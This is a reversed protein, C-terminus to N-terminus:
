EMLVWVDNQFTADRKSHCGTELETNWTSFFSDRAWFVQELPENDQGHFFFHTKNRFQVKTAKAKVRHIM